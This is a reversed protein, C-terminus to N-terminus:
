IRLRPDLVDRLWDGLLNIGLVTLMIALGPFTAPWWAVQLYGRADSLMSGWTPEPPPVGLGLFSLSAETIVMQAFAFTAIVTVPAMVNPLIHRALIRLHPAGMVRAAIIFDRERVSLVEGRVVRAYLIWGAVGLVIILNVLGPGLVAVIAIALALFPFSMQIDAVRMIIDDTLGGFYGSILGLVVGITGAVIVSVAGVLLSVRAGFIIRSLIDRGQQDTGLFYGNAFFAPPTLRRALDGQLPDALALWPALLALATMSALLGLGIVGMRHPWLAAAMAAGDAPWGLAQLRGKAALAGFSGMM